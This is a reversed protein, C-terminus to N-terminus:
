QSAVLAKGAHLLPERTKYEDSQSQPQRPLPTLVFLARWSAVHEEYCRDKM